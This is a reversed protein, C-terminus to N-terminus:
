QIPTISHQTEEILQLSPDQDFLTDLNILILMEDQWECIGELFQREIVKETEPPPQIRDEPLHLVDLVKDVVLGLLKDRINLTMIVTREHYDMQEYGFRLRLDMVPIISGRLNIVGKYYEPLNPIITIREYTIFERVKRIDLIYTEEAIKFSVYQKGENGNIDIVDANEQPKQDTM